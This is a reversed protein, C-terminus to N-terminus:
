VSSLASNNWWIPANKNKAATRAVSNIYRTGVVVYRQNPAYFAGQDNPHVEFRTLIGSV